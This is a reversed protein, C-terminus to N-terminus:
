SFCISSYLNNVADFLLSFPSFFCISVQLLIIGSKSDIPIIHNKSFLYGPLRDHAAMDTEKKEMGACGSALALCIAVMIIRMM